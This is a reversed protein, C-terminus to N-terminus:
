FQIVEIKKVTDNKLEFGYAKMTLVNLVFARGTFAAGTDMDLKWGTMNSKFEDKGKYMIPTIEWDEPWKFKDLYDGLYPTPTHGFICIRDPAWGYGIATRHWLLAETSYPDPTKGDYEADSVDKFAKYLAASHCFDCTDTSFTLSLKEIDKVIDMPMGDLIWNTLTHLGGNALSDQIEAYRYDFYMCAQLTRHIDKENKGSFDFNNKLMHAAKTFMDEHNGKLYVVHPNDLLEKMIKYGDPGRDCADGLFVITAEPDQEKCFDMIARYLQFNGHIDTFCFIDRM